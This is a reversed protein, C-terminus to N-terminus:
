TIRFTGKMRPNGRDTPMTGAWPIAGRYDLFLVLISQEHPKLTRVFGSQTGTGYKTHGFRFTHPKTGHNVLIFRAVAGREGVKPSMSIATDSITVKIPIVVPPATTRSMASGQAVVVAAGIAVSALAFLSWRVTWYALV